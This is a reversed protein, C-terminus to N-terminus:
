CNRASCNCMGVRVVPRADLGRPLPKRQVNCVRKPVVGDRLVERIPVYRVDIAYCDDEVSWMTSNRFPQKPVDDGNLTSMLRTLM